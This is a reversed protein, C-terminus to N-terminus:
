VSENCFGARSSDERAAAPAGRLGFAACRAAARLKAVPVRLRADPPVLARRHRIIV